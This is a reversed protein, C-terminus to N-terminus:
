ISIGMQKMLTIIFGITVFLTILGVVTKAAGSLNAQASLSQTAIVGIVATFVIVEVLIKLTKGM